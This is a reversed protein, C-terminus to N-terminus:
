SANTQIFKGLLYNLLIDVSSTLKEPSKTLTSLSIVNKTVIPVGDWNLVIKM